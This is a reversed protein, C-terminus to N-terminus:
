GGHAGRRACSRIFDADALFRREDNPDWYNVRDLTNIKVVIDTTWAEGRALATEKIVSNLRKTTQFCSMHEMVWERPSYRAHQDVMRLLTDPLGDETAFTGTQENILPYKYGYNFGDRLICPVGAFMGEVITRNVGERRSWLVNVRARNFLLNVEAQGVSEHIELQDRVGFLDAQALLEALTTDIPYGVLAVKLVRGQKRLRGLARFFARHRKYGSWGAVM